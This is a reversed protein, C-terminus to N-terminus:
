QIVNKVLLGTTKLINEIEIQEVIMSLFCLLPIDIGRSKAKAAVAWRM